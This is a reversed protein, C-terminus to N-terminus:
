LTFTVEEMNHYVDIEKENSPYYENQFIHYIEHYRPYHERRDFIPTQLQSLTWSSLPADWCSALNKETKQNAHM